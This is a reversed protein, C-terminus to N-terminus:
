GGLAKSLVAFTLTERTLPAHAALSPRRWRPHQGNTLSLGSRPLPLLTRLTWSVRNQATNGSEVTHRGVRRWWPFIFGTSRLAAVFLALRIEVIPGQDSRADGAGPRSPPCRASDPFSPAKTPDRLSVRAIFIMNWEIPGPFQANEGDGHSRALRALEGPCLKLFVQQSLGPDLSAPDPQLLM